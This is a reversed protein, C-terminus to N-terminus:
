QKFEFGVWVKTRDAYGTVGQYDAYKAILSFKPTVSATAQLDFEEGLSGGGHQYEFDHYVGTLALGSFHPAKLPPKWTLTLSTDEIGNAPTTLFVDAWGQFAHLTALPTAFGRTGDGELSEYGLKASVPGYAAGIDAEWYNLSYSSPNSGYDSQSAYSGAWSWAIDGAKAKGTARVGYTITSAGPATPFDLAYVFATPVFLDSGTAVQGNFLWSDSDYDAAEAFIRNIKDLYAVTAKVPGVKFDARVADFTQDDQRWGVPGVFRQDDLVIRQRGITGTFYPDPSWSLQIRNLETVEPDAIVPYPEAAGVADNYHGSGLDTVNDFEIAGKLGNWASTEWGLRTRVTYAEANDAFGAQDVTEYRGRVEFILKGMGIADTLSQASAGGATM